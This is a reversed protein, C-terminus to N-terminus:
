DRSKPVVHDKRFEYFDQKIDNVQYQLVNVDSKIQFVAETTKTLEKRTDDIQDVLRLLFWAILLLAGRAIWSGFKDWKISATIGMDDMDNKMEINFCSGDTKNWHM